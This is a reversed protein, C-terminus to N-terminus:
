RIELEDGERVSGRLSGGALELVSYAGPVWPSLRWPGLDAVVRRVRQGRDLFLLDIPFRMCVTHVMACPVIWLAEGSSLGNRGLLGKARAWPTDALEVKEALVGGRTKNSAIM